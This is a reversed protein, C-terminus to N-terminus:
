KNAPRELLVLEFVVINTLYPGAGVAADVIDPIKSM